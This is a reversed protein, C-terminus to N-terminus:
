EMMMLRIKWFIQGGQARGQVAAKTLLWSGELLGAVPPPQPTQQILVDKALGGATSTMGDQAELAGINQARLKSGSFHSPLSRFLCLTHHWLEATTEM